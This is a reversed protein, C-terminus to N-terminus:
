VSTEKGLEFYITVVRMVIFANGVYFLQRRSKRVVGLCLRLCNNIGFQRFHNM